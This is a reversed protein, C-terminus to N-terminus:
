RGHLPIVEGRTPRDTVSLSEQGVNTASVPDFGGLGDPSTGWRFRYPDECLRGFRLGDIMREAATVPDLPGATWPRDWSAPEEWDGEDFYAEDLPWSTAPVTVTTSLACTLGEPGSGAWASPSNGRIPRDYKLVLQSKWPLEALDQAILDRLEDWVSEPIQETPVYPTILGIGPDDLRQIEQAADPAANRGTADVETGHRSPVELGLSTLASNWLGNGLRYAVEPWPAPWAPAEELGVQRGLETRMREYDNPALAYKCGDAQSRRLAAVRGLIRRTTDGSPDFASFLQEVAAFTTEDLTCAAEADPELGAIRAVTLEVGVRIQTETYFATMAAAEDATYKPSLQVLLQDLLASSEHPHLLLFRRRIQDPRLGRDLMDAVLAGHRDEFRPLGTPVTYM